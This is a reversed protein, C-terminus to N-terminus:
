YTRSAAHSGTVKRPTGTITTHLLAGGDYKLNLMLIHLRKIHDFCINIGIM